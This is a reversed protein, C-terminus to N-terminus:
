GSAPSTARRGEPFRAALARLFDDGDAKGDLLALMEALRRRLRERLEATAAKTYTVVLIREIAPPPAGDREELLLRAFLAAITWTKGTGASAEILNVGQLPCNLADLAQPANM